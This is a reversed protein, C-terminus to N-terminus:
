QSRDRRPDPGRLPSSWSLLRQRWWQTIQDQCPTLVHSIGILLLGLFLPIVPYWGSPLAGALLLLLVGGIACGNSISIRTKSDAKTM